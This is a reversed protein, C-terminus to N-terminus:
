AGIIEAVWISKVGMGMYKVFVYTLPLFFIWLRLSTLIMVTTTDGAGRLAGSVIFIYNIIPQDIAVALMAGVLVSLIAADPTFLRATFNPFVAFFTGILIGWMIGMGFCLYGTFRAKKNDKEGLSKGVLTAAAISIGIAPMISVQEITLLVRFAAESTTDLISVIIGSIFFAFQTLFQEVGAKYSLQWLPMFIEKKLKLAAKSIRLHGKHNLLILLYAGAGIIRSITTALASGQIGMEPFIGVGRILLINLIINIVNVGGTILMPTMTNGIGRLSAGAAFSFFMFLLSFSTINLFSISMDFVTRTTDFIHMFQRSFLFTIMMMALGLVSNLILNECSVENLKQYNKEGYSRSIMATAGVNFSSFVLIVMYIIQNAYGSAALGDKGVYFSLLVTDSIGVLTNLLMEVIAPVSLTLISIILAKNDKLINM